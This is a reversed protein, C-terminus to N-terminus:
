IQPHQKEQCNCVPFTDKTNFHFQRITFSFLKSKDAYYWHWCWCWWWWCRSRKWCKIIMSPLLLSHCALRFFSASLKVSMSQCTQKHMTESCRRTTGPLECSLTRTRPYSFISHKTSQEQFCIPFLYYLALSRVIHPMYMCVYTLIYKSIDSTNEISIKVLFDHIYQKQFVLSDDRRQLM